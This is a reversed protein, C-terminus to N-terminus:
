PIGALGVRAWISSYEFFRAITMMRGLYIVKWTPFLPYAFSSGTLSILSLICDIIKM